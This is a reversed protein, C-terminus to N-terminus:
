AREVDAVVAEEVEEEAAEDVCEEEEVEKLDEVVHDEESVEELVEEVQVEETTAEVEPSSAMTPDTRILSTSPWSDISDAKVLEAKNV